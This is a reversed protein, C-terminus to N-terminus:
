LLLRDIRIPLDRVRIGTAHHVANAVAAATGVIGIEGIGKSGMPNIRTDEEDVWYAEIHPVDACAAVHYQAFDHNLYDGFEVDMVSEEMLAMGVGMTMGGIFQSRATKPNIVRGVAFVGLLRPVRVEGTDMDVRVEAFQAGFAHRSLPPQSAIEEATDARTELPLTGGRRDMEELLSECARVVATGWSATGMSGGAIPATPFASDGVEVRVRDLPVRLADAAIQTLATRAGTGIDAAAVRVTFRGDTDARASAQSPRRVTPYTSSAVGTGVLWRGNRRVGPAPDREAWGFRAAGERLCAVLNRSSFPVGREPDLEPENRVRLEVPDMGCAIALEDMASELAFMGPCEGPARMFTPTPVDLATLRHTTRRNPAAYMMRTPTTTQEAFEMLTSTQEFADHIIATLRGDRGAGLRVRQIIPTRYGVLSFMQQRTAAAKVARRTVKAAIVALVIPPHPALKSGFGGGVHPSIVHVQDPALEFLKALVDRVVSAGQNSDYLTLGGNEWVAVTAHPEMPNNHQAPTTYTLDVSVAAERLATDPDGSETDTPYNPAVKPPKYMKPDDARLVVDHPEQSYTVRVRGAAERAAEITEAVVAAVIQGRYAVRNSQFLALERDDTAGLRPANGYWIVAIVGPLALAAEVDVDTVEGRAIVSQVPMTYATGHDPTHEFAYRATGTIKEKAEIRDVAAGVAQAGTLTM